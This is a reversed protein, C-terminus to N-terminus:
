KRLMNLWGVEAATLERVHGRPLNKKTLPGISVRDLSVVEYGLHEFMRRVIRNRGSHIEVGVQNMGGNEIYGADDPKIPGDELELGAMLQDLHEETFDKDLKVHYIKKIENSPHTLKEVLAGDNTFLLLGTTNRDLRGVPVVRERTVKRIIDMVTRRNQEDKMTTIHNKPKNMLFYVFRQLELQKGNYVVKDKEPDVKVGLDEVVKGNLKVKGAQILADAERRSSIGALAMFRNIRMIGHSPPPLKSKTKMFGPRSDKGGGKKESKWADRDAPGDKPKPMAKPKEPKIFDSFPHAKVDKKPADAGKKGAGAPKNTAKRGKNM